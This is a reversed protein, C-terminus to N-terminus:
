PSFRLIERGDQVRETRSISGAWLCSCPCSSKLPTRSVCRSSMVAASNPGNGDVWLMTSVFSSGGMRACRNSGHLNSVSNFHTGFM